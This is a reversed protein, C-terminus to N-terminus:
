FANFYPCAHYIQSLIYSSPSIHWPLSQFNLFLSLDCKHLMKVGSKISDLSWRITSSSGSWAELGDELCQLSWLSEQKSLYANVICLVAREGTSAGLWHTGRLRFRSSEKPFMCHINLVMFGPKPVTLDRCKMMLKGGAALSRFKDMELLLTLLGRSLWSTPSPEQWQQEQCQHQQNPPSKTRHSNSYCGVCLRTHPGGGM